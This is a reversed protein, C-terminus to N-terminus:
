EILRFAIQGAITQFLGPLETASSTEFYHDNTGTHSSAICKLLNRDATNDHDNNGINGTNCLSTSSSGCVGFGVVFIEVGAAKLGNAYTQTKTDLQKERTQAGTCSSSVDGDSNSPDTDPRCESPPAGGGYSVANYTNDGDTLIVIFRLTNAATHHGTGMLISNAQYLGLCNNTGSGGLATVDDIQSL